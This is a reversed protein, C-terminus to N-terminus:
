PKAQWSTTSRTKPHNQFCGSGNVWDLGPGSAPEGSRNRVGTTNSQKNESTSDMGKDWKTFSWLKQFPNLIHASIPHMCRSPNAEAYYWSMKQCALNMAFFLNETWQTNKKALAQMVGDMHNFMDNHVTIVYHLTASHRKWMWSTWYLFPRLHKM